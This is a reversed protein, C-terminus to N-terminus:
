AALRERVVPKRGTEREVERALWEVLKQRQYEEKEARREIFRALPAFFLHAAVVGLFTTVVAMPISTSLMSGPAAGAQLQSLAILTGALGFVPALDAALNFTAVAIQSEARRSRAQAEHTALLASISRHALVAETMEDFGRDGSPHVEARLLGNRQIDQIQVALAARAREADFTRSFAAWLGKLAVSSRWLGSRLVTGLVTGGLVIAASTGDLLIGYNM